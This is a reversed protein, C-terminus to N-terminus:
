SDSVLATSDKKLAIAKTNRFGGKCHLKERITADWVNNYGCVCVTCDGVTGGYALLYEKAPVKCHHISTFTEEM